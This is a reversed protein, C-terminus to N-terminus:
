NRQNDPIALKKDLKELEERSEFHQPQLELAQKLEARAELLKVRFDPHLQILGMAKRYHKLFVQKETAVAQEFHNEANAKRGLHVYMIALQFHADVASQQKSIAHFFAQEADDYRGIHGYAIGCRTSLIKQNKQADPHTDCIEVARTMSGERVHASVLTILIEGKNKLKRYDSEFLLIDSAWEANRARTIPTMILPIIAVMTVVVRLKFKQLLWGLLFALVISLGVSPLYLLRDALEPIKDIGAESLIRSSPLISIYFFALGIILGNRKQVFGAIALGILGLQSGLALWFPTEPADYYIQLPYPWLLSKLSEFWLGVAPVLKESGLNLGLKELGPSQSTQEAVWAGERGGTEAGGGLAYARLVLYLGLSILLWLVPICKRLRLQWPDSNIMWILIVALAPLSAGSERCLLVLLYILGLGAWAKKAQREHIKLFWWLGGIVGISVLIESRNFISNVVEAHIPHVGFISAALFAALSSVAPPNGSPALLHRLFSFVLLTAFVHLLINVLHYGPIWDGFLQADLAISVLLFPRYLAADIGSASWLEETFFRAIDGLGLDQYRGSQAFINDDFTLSNPWANSYAILTVLVLYFLLFRPTTLRSWDSQHRNRTEVAIRAPSKHQKQKRSLSRNRRSRNQQAM